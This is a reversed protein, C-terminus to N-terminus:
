GDSGGSVTDAVRDASYSQVAGTDISRSGRPRRDCRATAATPVVAATAPDTAEVSIRCLATERDSATHTTGTATAHPTITTAIAGRKGRAVSRAAAAAASRTRAGSTPAGGSM